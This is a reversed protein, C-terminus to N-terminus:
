SAERAKTHKEPTAPKSSTNHNLTNYSPYQAQNSSIPWKGNTLHVLRNGGM